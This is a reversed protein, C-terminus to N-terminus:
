MERLRCCGAGANGPSFAIAPLSGVFLETGGEFSEISARALRFFAAECRSRALFVGPLNAPSREAAFVSSARRTAAPGQPQWAVGPTRFSTKGGPCTARGTASLGSVSIQHRLELYQGAQGTRPAPTGTSSSPTAARPASRHAASSSTSTRSTSRSSRAALVLIRRRDRALTVAGGRIVALDGAAPRGAAPDGGRASAATGPGGTTSTHCPPLATAKSTSGAM